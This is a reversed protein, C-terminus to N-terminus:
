SKINITYDTNPEITSVGINERAQFEEASVGGDVFRKQENSIEAFAFVCSTTIFIFVFTLSILRKM